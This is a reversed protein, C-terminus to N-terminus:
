KPHRYLIGKKLCLKQMDTLFGKPPIGYIDVTGDENTEVTFKRQGKLEEDYKGLLFEKFFIIRQNSSGRLPKNDNLEEVYRGDVLIGIYPEYETKFDPFVSLLEEYTYGTYVLVDEIGLRSVAKLLLKLDSQLFPEGGSITVGMDPNLALYGAIQATLDDASVRSGTGVAQLNGAICGKCHHNCGVTWVVAREGAGLSLVPYAIRKIEM